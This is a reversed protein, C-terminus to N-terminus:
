HEGNLHARVEHIVCRQRKKTNWSELYYGLLKFPHYLINDTAPALQCIRDIASLIRDGHVM